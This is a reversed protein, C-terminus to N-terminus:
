AEDDTAEKTAGTQLLGTSGRYVWANVNRKGYMKFGWKAMTAANLPSIDTSSNRRSWAWLDALDRRVAGACATRLSPQNLHALTATEGRRPMVASRFEGCAQAFERAQPSEVKVGPIKAIEDILSAAQSAKDIIVVCPKNGKNVMKKITPVVWQTGPQHHLEISGPEKGQGETIEVHEMGDENLGAVAIASYRRDPTTDVAMAFKGKIESTQDIRADWADEDIEQWADDDDPWDGVGLREQDFQEPEMSAREVECFDVTLRIGLGPNAKAYSEVSDREDHEDCDRPCDDLHPDISWEAFFMKADPRRIGDRGKVGKLARSRMRGFHTSEKDGASGTVWVQPNPRASLTPLLASIQQGDLYMAEDLILCDSTFGRGGGKTRTRFRLRQGSKLTIGEKGHSRSVQAVERDLDPTQEILQLVREFAEFSTDFQHASHIILREGFLYLGALERAELISGKGNQRSVVLGVEFASWKYETRKTYPNWFPQAKNPVHACEMTWAQWPDLTLGAMDALDVIERGLSGLEPPPADEKVDQLIDTGWSPLALVRPRQHGMLTLEDEEYLSM